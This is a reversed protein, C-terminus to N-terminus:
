NLKRAIAVIAPGFRRWVLYGVILPPTVWLGAFLGAIAITGMVVLMEQSVDVSTEVARVAWNGHSVAAAALRLSVTITALDTQDNLVNLQGQVLEIEGRTANISEQVRLIEDITQARALLALYSAEAGQLNRLRSALDTYENTVETVSTNESDVGAAISRLRNMVDDYASNPVRITILAREPKAAQPDEARSVVVNSDSVFGGADSAIARVDRLASDLDRIALDVQANRVIKRGADATGEDGSGDSASGSDNSRDYSGGCAAFLLALAVIPAFV